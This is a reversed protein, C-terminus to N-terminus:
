RVPTLRRRTGAVTPLRSRYGRPGRERGATSPTRAAYQKKKVDFKGCSMAEGGITVAFHAPEDDFSESSDFTLLVKNFGTKASYRLKDPKADSIIPLTADIVFGVGPLDVARNGAEDLLSVLAEYSGDTEGGKVEYTFIYTTDGQHAFALIETGGSRTVTIGPAAALPEDATVVYSVTDGIKAFPPEVKASVLKPLTFDFVVTGLLLGESRNGGQDILTALVQCTTEPETGKGRPTYTFEFHTDKSKAEDLTMSVTKGRLDVVVKPTEVLPESVDFSARIEIGKRALTPTIKPKGTIVPATSDLNATKICRGMNTNCTWGAPCDKESACSINIGEPVAFDNSCGAAPLAVLLAAAIIDRNVM